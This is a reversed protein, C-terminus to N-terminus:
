EGGEEVAQELVEAVGVGVHADGGGIHEGVKQALDAVGGLEGGPALGEFLVACFSLFVPLALAFM